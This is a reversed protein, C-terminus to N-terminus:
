VAVICRSKKPFRFLSRWVHKESHDLTLSETNYELWRGDLPCGKDAVQLDV